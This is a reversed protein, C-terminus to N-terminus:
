HGGELLRTGRLRIFYPSLEVPEFADSGAILARTGVADGHARVQRGILRVPV